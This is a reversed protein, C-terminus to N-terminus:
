SSNDYQGEGTVLLLMNDYYSLMKDYYSVQM